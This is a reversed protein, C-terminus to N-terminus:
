TGFIPLDGSASVRSRIACKCHGPRTRVAEGLPPFAANGRHPNPRALWEFNGHPGGIRHHFSPPSTEAVPDMFKRGSHVPRLAGAQTCRGSHVPRLSCAQTFLGSHVPGPQAGNFPRSARRSPRQGRPLHPGGRGGGSLPPGGSARPGDARARRAPWAGPPRRRMFRGSASRPSRRSSTRSCREETAPDSMMWVRALACAPADPANGIEPRPSRKPGAPRGAM